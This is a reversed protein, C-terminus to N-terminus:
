GPARAIAAAVAAQGLALGGDGPPVRRHLYVKFSSGLECLVREALLANQFCGGTLVVPLTGHNRAVRRVVDASARSLTNHFRGSIVAPPVGARLDRVVRRIMPRFDLQWPAHRDEVIYGYSGSEFPDAVGNWELAIQGEYRSRQRALVLSGVGDFYRGAGHALPSRVHTRLMQRVGAMDGPRVCSFVQLDDFPTQGDFADELLALAVRWPQRIAADGGALAVPRFTAVREFSEHRVVLV